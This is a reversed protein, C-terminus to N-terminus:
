KVGWPLGYRDACVPGYGVQVSRGDGDDSLPTSCFVCREHQHGFAAAQEATIPQLSTDGRLAPQYDWGQGTWAKTYVGTGAKNAQVKVYVGGANVYVGPALGTRTTPAKDQRAVMAEGAARQRETLSGYRTLGSLLSAAFERDRPSASPNAAIAQLGTTLPDADAAKAAKAAQLLVVAGQLVIVVEYAAAEGATGDLVARIADEGPLTLAALTDAPADPAADNALRMLGTVQSAYSAGCSRCYPFWKGSANVAAFGQGALVNTGCTTCTGSRRTEIVRSYRSLAPANTSM